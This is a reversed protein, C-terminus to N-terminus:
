NERTLAEVEGLLDTLEGVRTQSEGAPYSYALTLLRNEGPHIAFVWIEEIDGGERPWAGRATFATGIPTGLERNGFYTGGAEFEAKKAKVAEILNIGAESVPGLGFVARGDGAVGPSTLVFEDPSNVAVQFASPLRALAIGLGPSEVREGFAPEPPTVSFFCAGLLVATALVALCTSSARPSRLAASALVYPM